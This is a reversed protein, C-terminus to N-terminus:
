AFHKKLKFSLNVLILTLQVNQNILKEAEELELVIKFIDAHPFNTNLRSLRDILDFNIVKAMDEGLNRVRM